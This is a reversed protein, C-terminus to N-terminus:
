LWKRRAASPLAFDAAQRSTHFALRMQDQLALAEIADRMVEAVAGM